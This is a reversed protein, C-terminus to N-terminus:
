LSVKLNEVTSYPLFDALKLGELKLKARLVNRARAPAAGPRSWRPVCPQLKNVRLRDGTKADIVRWQSRSLILHNRHRPNATQRETNMAQSAM